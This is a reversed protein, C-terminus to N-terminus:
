TSAPKDEEEQENKENQNEILQASPDNEVVESSKLEELEKELKRVKWQLRYQRLIGFMGVVLGGLLASGIIILILPMETYGYLYNVTVPAVNVVAFIAVILSFLLGLLLSWQFRM